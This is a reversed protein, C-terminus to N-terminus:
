TAIERKWRKWGLRALLLADAVGTSSGADSRGLPARPYFREALVISAEKDRGTLHYAKKWKQPTVLQVTLGIGHCVGEAMATAHGFRFGGVSGDHPLAQTLEITVLASEGQIHTLMKERLAKGDVMRTNVTRQGVPMPVVAVLNGDASLM